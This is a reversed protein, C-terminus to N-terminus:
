GIILDDPAIELYRELFELDTCPAIENHAAERTDDDMYEAMTDLGIEELAAAPTTYTAGNDVSIQKMTTQGKKQGPKVRHVTELVEWDSEWASSDDCMELFAEETEPMDYGFVIYEFLEGNYKNAVYLAEQRRSEDGLDAGCIATCTEVSYETGNIEFTKM